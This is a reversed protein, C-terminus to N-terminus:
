SCHAQVQAKAKKVMEQRQTESIKENEPRYRFYSRSSYRSLNRRANSCAKQRRKAQAAQQKQKREADQQRLQRVNDLSPLKEHSSDINAAPLKDSIDEAAQGKPKKDSYHVNGNADVWKYLKTEAVAAVLPFCLLLGLVATVFGSAKWLTKM